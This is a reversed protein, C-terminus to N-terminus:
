VSYLQTLLVGQAIKLHFRNGFPDNEWPMVTHGHSLGSSYLHIEYSSLSQVSCFIWHEVEADNPPKM